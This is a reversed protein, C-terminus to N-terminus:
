DRWRNLQEVLEWTWPGPCQWRWYDTTLWRTAPVAQRLVPHEAFRSALAKSAPAAWLIADPPDAAIQELDLRLYGEDRLYNTWGARELIGDEFSGRGTGIGNAGLLLLRKRAHPPPLAPPTSALAGPLDLLALLRQEYAVVEALSTPLPLVEVRVGLTQLRNRLLLANYQGAIVLDPKLELIRELTGDHVPWAENLWAVPYQRHMMSLAAIRSREAYRALMWDTCLDLSVIRQATGAVAPVALCTSVILLLRTWLKRMTLPLTLSPPFVGAGGM